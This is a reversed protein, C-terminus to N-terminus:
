LVFEYTVIFRAPLARGKEIYPKYRTIRAAQLSAQDFDKGGSKQIQTEVVRGKDDITVWVLVRSTVGQEEAWEPYKPMVKELAEPEQNIQVPAPPPPPPAKQVLSDAPKMLTNGTAVAMDGKEDTAEPALGFVPPPPAVTPPPTKPEPPPKPKPPEQIIKPPPPPPPAEEIIQVEEESFLKELPLRGGTFLVAVCIAIAALALLLDLRGFRRSTPLNIEM